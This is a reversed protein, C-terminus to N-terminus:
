EKINNIIQKAQKLYDFGGATDGYWMNIWNIADNKNNFTKQIKDSCGNDSYFVNLSIPMKNNKYKANISKIIAGM